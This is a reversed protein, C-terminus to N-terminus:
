NDRITKIIKGEANISYWQSENLLYINGDPQQEWKSFVLDSSLEGSSNYLQISANDLVLAIVLNQVKLLKIEDFDIPLIENMQADILGKQYDKQITALGYTRLSEFDIKIQLTPDLAWDGKKTVVGFKGRSKVCVYDNYVGKVKEYRYGVLTDGKSDFFCYRNNRKGAGFTGDWYKIKSFKPAFIESGTSDCIGVLGNKYVAFYNSRPGKAWIHRYNKDNIRKGNKDIFFAKSSAGRFVGVLGNFHYDDHEAFSEYKGTSLNFLKIQKGSVIEVKDDYKIALAEYEPALVQSGNSDLLGFKSNMKVLIYQKTDLGEGGIHLVEIDDYKPKSIVTGDPAVLGVKDGKKPFFYDYNYRDQVIEDYDGLDLEKGNKDILVEKGNRVAILTNGFNYVLEDLCDYVFPLLVKGTSDIVGMKCDYDGDDRVKSLAIRGSYVLEEWHIYDDWYPAQYIPAAIQQGSTKCFGYGDGNTVLCWNKVNDSIADYRPSCHVFGTSNMFGWRDDKKYAFTGDEMAQIEQYQPAIVVKGTTDALGWKNNNIIVFHDDFGSVTMVSDFKNELIIEMDSYSGHMLGWKGDKKFATLNKYPWMYENFLEEYEQALIFNELTDMLGVKGNNQAKILGSFGDANLSEYNFTIAVSEDQNIYGFQGDKQVYYQVGKKPCDVQSCVIDIFDYSCSLERSGDVRMLGRKGKKEVALSSNMVGSYHGNSLLYMYDFEFPIINKNHEDLLGFYSGKKAIFVKPVTNTIRILSDYVMPIVLTDGSNVVGYKGQKEVLQYYERYDVIGTEFDILSSDPQIIRYDCPPMYIASTAPYVMWHEYYWYDQVYHISTDARDILTM